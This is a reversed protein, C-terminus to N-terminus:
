LLSPFPSIVLIDDSHKGLPIDKYMYSPDAKVNRM